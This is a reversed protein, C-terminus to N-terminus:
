EKILVMAIAVTAEHAISIEMEPHGDVYPKGSADNLISYALYAPNQTAKFLAEKACIRGGLFAIRQADTHLKAFASREKETLVHRILAEDPRVRDLNLLDIGIM